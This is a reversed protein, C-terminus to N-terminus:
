TGAFNWVNEVVLEPREMPVLHGADVDVIQLRPTAAALGEYVARPFNGRAAWLVRTPVALSAIDALLLASGPGGEFVRAEVEASCKLEVGGDPRERLGEQVYLDLARPTWAAFLEREAFWRRAEARDPWDQRRKRAREVLDRGRQAREPDVGEVPPTVVPDVLLLQRFLRPRRLAASLMLTGGFSHGIGLAVGSAAFEASVTEAVFAVDEALAPWATADPGPPCSSDGQGRADMGVVRYAERLAEAVPTLTAACFGNAHHLLALPGDGGWDLLAIDHGTDPRRLRRRTADRLM